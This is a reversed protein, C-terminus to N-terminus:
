LHSSTGRALSLEVTDVALAFDQNEGLKRAVSQAVLQAQEATIGDMVHVTVMVEPGPGGGLLVKGARDQSTVGRGPSLELGEVLPEGQALDQLTKQLQTDAYSPTWDQQQALAWMAPRRVVFTAESAPDLVLLQAEEAVASLAARAAYVAVPRAEPHWQTLKAVESFIPLAKRGDPANLWVLAMDAQKDEAFGHEGLGGEALQAVVPVFVRARALAEIVKKEAAAVGEISFPPEGGELNAIAEALQQDALGNDNEFQHQPDASDSLDRGAWPVGASDTLQGAKALAAAIHGPLHRQAGEGNQGHAHSQNHSHGEAHDHGHHHGHGSNHGATRDANHDAHQDASSQHSM